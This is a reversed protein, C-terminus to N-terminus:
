KVSFKIRLSAGMEDVVTLTHEGKNPSYEKKHFIETEGIYQGDLHWFVRNQSSRHALEFIMKGPSGDLQKPLSIVSNPFPYIFEMPKADEDDRCEPSYPPL